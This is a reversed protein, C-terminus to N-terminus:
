QQPLEASLYYSQTLKHTHMHACQLNSGGVNRGVKSWERGRKGMGKGRRNGGRRKAGRGERGVGRWEGGTGEGGRM